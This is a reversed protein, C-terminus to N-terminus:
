LARSQLTYSGNAVTTTNWNYIWGWPSSTAPGLLLNSYIGGTIRFEVGVVPGSAAASLTTTGSLTAGNSPVAVSTSMNKVTVNISPSVATNNSADFARAALTYAGDGVTLTNWSYIWGYPSNTATGLVANSYVGGTIRFEVRVVPGSAAASLTTTGSLTAGNSPVVVAAS